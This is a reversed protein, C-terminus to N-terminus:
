QEANRRQVPKLPKLETYGKAPIWLDLLMNVVTNLSASSNHIETQLRVFQGERWTFSRKRLGLHISSM